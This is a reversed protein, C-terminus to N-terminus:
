KKSPKLKKHLSPQSLNFIKAKFILPKRLWYSTYHFKPFPPGEVELGLSYTKLLRQQETKRGEIKKVNSQNKMRRM